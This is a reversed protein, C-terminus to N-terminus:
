LLCQNFDNYHISSSILIVLYFSMNSFFIKINDMPKSCSKKGDYIIAYYNKKNNKINTEINFIMIDNSVDLRYVQNNDLIAEFSSVSFLNTKNSFDGYGPNSTPNQKTIIIDNIKFFNFM